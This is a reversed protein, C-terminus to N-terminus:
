VEPGPDAAHSSNWFAWPIAVNEPTSSWNDHVIVYDESGLPGSGDPDWNLIYGVGTVAHGICEEGYEGNWDEEPDESELVVEGWSFVDITEGTEPDPFAIDEDVPNWFKFCVVLPRGADIEAQYFTFEGPLGDTVYDDTMTWDYGLKGAPLGFPPPPPLAPFPHTADWRVFDSTGPGIDSAYTGAAPAKTVGNDRDPSGTNNTDMFYGLYEAVTNLNPPQQFATLNEANSHGMVADWYGLINVMAMPACYNSPITTALTATPPQSTDPVEDIFTMDFGFNAVITYDDNMIITTTADNVDDIDDVDGTWNVFHYNTDPTAVLNVEEGDDYNFTGEGPDTVNGGATSSIALDYEIAPENTCCINSSLVISLLFIVLTIAISKRKM